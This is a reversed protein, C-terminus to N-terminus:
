AAPASARLGTHCLDAVSPVRDAAMALGAPSGVSVIRVREPHAALWQAVIFREDHHGDTAM